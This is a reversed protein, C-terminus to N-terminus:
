RLRRTHFSSPSTYLVRYRKLPVTPLYFVTVILCSVVSGCEPCRDGQGMLKAGIGNLRLLNGVSEDTTEAICKGCFTRPGNFWHLCKRSCFVRGDADRHSFAVIWGGCNQCTTFQGRQQPIESQPIPPPLAATIEAISSASAWDAMGSKWVLTTPQLRGSVVLATLDSVSVPGTKKGRIIYFWENQSM